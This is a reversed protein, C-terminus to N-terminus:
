RMQVRILFPWTNPSAALWKLCEMFSIASVPLATETDLQKIVEKRVM